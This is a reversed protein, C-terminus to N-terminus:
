LAGKAVPDINGHESCHFTPFTYSDCKIHFIFVQKNCTNCVIKSGSFNPLKARDLEIHQQMHMDGRKFFGAPGPFPTDLRGVPFDGSMLFAGSGEALSPTELAEGPLAAPRTFYIM